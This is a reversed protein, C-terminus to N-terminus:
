SGASGTSGGRVASTHDAVRGLEHVTSAEALADTADDLAAQLTEHEDELARAQRESEASATSHAAAAVDRLRTRADKLARVVRPKITM